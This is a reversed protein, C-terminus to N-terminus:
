EFSLARIIIDGSVGLTEILTIENRNPVSFEYGDPLKIKFYTGQFAIFIEVRIGKLFPFYNQRIEKGWKGNNRTNCVIKNHDRLYNFRATFHLATSNDINNLAITFQYANSSIDGVLRLISGPQLNLNIAFLPKAM